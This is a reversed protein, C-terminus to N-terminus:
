FSGAEVQVEIVVVDAPRVASGYDADLLREVGDIVRAIRIIVTADGATASQMSLGEAHSLTHKANALDSRIQRLQLESDALERLYQSTRAATFNDRQLAVTKSDRELNGLAQTAELFSETSSNLARRAEMLRPMLALGRETLGQLRKLEERDQEVAVSELERQEILRERQVEILEILEGLHVLEREDRETRAQARKGELTSFSAAAPLRQADEDGITDSQETVGAELRLFRNRAVERALAYRLRDVERRLDSTEKVTPRNKRGFLDFGGGRAIVQRVTMGPRFIQEGPETVDGMLYVPRYESVQVALKESPVTVPVFDGAVQRLIVQDQMAERIRSRLEPLTMGAAEILDGLPLVLHGSLEITSQFTLEPLGAASVEVQDGVSLRYGSAEPASAVLAHAEQASVVSPVALNLLAAAVFGGCISIISKQNFPQTRM